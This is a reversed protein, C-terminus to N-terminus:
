SRVEGPRPGTSPLVRWAGQAGPRYDRAAAEAEARTRCGEVARTWYPGEGEFRAPGKTWVTWTM